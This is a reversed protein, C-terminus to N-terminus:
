EDVLLCACWLCDDLIIDFIYICLLSFIFRSYSIFHTAICSTYAINNTVEYTTLDKTICHTINPYIIKQKTYVNMKFKKAIKTLKRTEEDTFGTFLLTFSSSVTSETSIKLPSWDSLPVIHIVIQNGMTPSAIRERHLLERHSYLFRSLPRVIQHCSTSFSSIMADCYLRSINVMGYERFREVVNNM